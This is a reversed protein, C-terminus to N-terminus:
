FAPGDIELAEEAELLVSTYTQALDVFAPALPGGMQVISDHAKVLATDMEENIPLGADHAEKRAWVVTEYAGRLKVYNRTAAAYEDRM